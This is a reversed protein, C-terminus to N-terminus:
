RSDKVITDLYGYNEQNTINLIGVMMNLTKGNFKGSDRYYYVWEKNDNLKDRSLKGNNYHRERVYNVGLSTSDEYIDELVGTGSYGKKTIRINDVYSEVYRLTDEKYKMHYERSIRNGLSDYLTREKLHGNAFYSRHENIAKGISYYGSFKLIDAEWFKEYVGDLSDNVFNSREIIGGEDNLNLFEGNKEGESYHGTVKSNGNEWFEKYYGDHVGHSYNCKKQIQGSHFYEVLTDSLEGGSYSSQIKLQGNDYWESYQGDLKGELFSTEISKQGNEHYGVSNGTYGKDSNVEYKIGNREVLSDFDVEKTCTTFLTSALFALISFKILTINKM